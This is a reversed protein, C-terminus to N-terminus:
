MDVAFAFKSWSRIKKGYLYFLIPAPVFALTLFGLLSSAWAVGLKEYMPTAFLPFVAAVASRVITNAALASAADGLYCEILYTLCPNFVLMTGCGIFPGALVQPVWTIDPSSTWAFWFLGIILSASGVFMPALNDEPTPQVGRALKKDIIQLHMFIAVASATFYGVMLSLFPLSAVGPSWKRVASFAYPYVEFTLYIIGYVFCNYLTIAVLIPETLLMHMPKLGYKRILERPEVPVEDRKAHLAWNETEVRLRAAKRQLMIPAWTEGMFSLILLLSFASIILTFWMTWRWGLNGNEVTFSGIIPGFTPGILITTAWAITALARTRIDWLDVILGPTVAVTAIGWTGQLFRCILVTYMNQAVAVGVTFCMFGVYGVLFPRYRGMYESVPGWVLPGAAFGLVYLTISLTAVTDSVDYEEGLVGIAPALVSSGFSVTLTCISAMLTTWLKKQWSWNQPNAPDEPGDWDVLNPEPNEKNDAVSLREEEDRAAPAITDNDTGYNSSSLPEGADGRTSPSASPIGLQAM